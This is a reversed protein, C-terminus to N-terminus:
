YKILALVRQTLLFEVLISAELRANSRPVTPLHDGPLDFTPAKSMPYFGYLLM